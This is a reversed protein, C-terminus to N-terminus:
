RCCQQPCSDPRSPGACDSLANLQQFVHSVELVAMLAGAGCDLVHLSCNDLAQCRQSDLYM